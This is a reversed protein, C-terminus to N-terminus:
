LEDPLRPVAAVIPDLDAILAEAAQELKGANSALMSGAVSVDPPPPTTRWQAAPQPAAPSTSQALSPTAQWLSLLVALMFGRARHGRCRPVRRARASRDSQSLASEM